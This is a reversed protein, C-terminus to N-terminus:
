KQVPRAGSAPLYLGDKAPEGGRRKGRKAPLNRIPAWDGDFRSLALSDTLRAVCLWRQVATSCCDGEEPDDWKRECCM